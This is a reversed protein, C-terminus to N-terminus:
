IKMSSPSFSLHCNPVIVTLSTTLSKFLIYEEILIKVCGTIPISILGGVLGFMYLGITLGALIALPSLDLNKSQITPSIFNNEIQQYIIFYVAYAIAAPVSNFALLIASLTGGITSGFMPILSLIFTLAAIPIALNAPVPFFLSLVFVALGAFTAGLSSVTLQGVMFGSVVRHMRQVVTRHYEMRKEDDYLGWVRKMWQPGEVLMLFALVLVLFTAALVSFLSGIGSLINTGASTAWKSSNQKFNAIAEDVQPQLNYQDIFHQIPGNSAKANEILAPVTEAFKATQQIIPPVALFVFGGLLAVIVIFSIATSGVRSKGPLYTALKSVPGNLTLALFLAAGLLILGSRASYVALAALALGAIVLWFRVFTETEIQIRVKM